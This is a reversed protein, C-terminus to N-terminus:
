VGNRRTVPLHDHQARSPTSEHGAVLREPLHRLWGFPDEDFKADLLAGMEVSYRGTITVQGAATVGIRVFELFYAGFQPGSRCATRYRRRVVEQVSVWFDSDRYRRPHLSVMGRACPSAATRGADPAGRRRQRPRVRRPCHRRCRDVAVREAVGIQGVCVDNRCPSGRVGGRDGLQPRRVADHEADESESLREAPVLGGASEEHNQPNEGGVASEGQTVSNPDSGAFLRAHGVVCDYAAPSEPSLLRSFVNM